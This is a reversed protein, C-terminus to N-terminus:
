QGLVFREKNFLRTVLFVFLGTIALNTIISFTFLLTVNAANTLLASICVSLNLVPVFALGTSTLGLISPILSLVMFLMTCPGLYSAAEKVTNAIASILVGFGVFLLLTSIIILLLLVIQGFSLGLSMGGMLSPLSGILGLFSVIGSIAAVASLAVIKGLAYESRKIPTMLISALTGREKEGSISEPCFSIVTSYLMSVTIMPLVFGIIKGAMASGDSESLNTEVIAPAGDKIETNVMYNNYAYPIFSTMTSQLNESDGDEGNYFININNFGPDTSLIKEEFNTTYEVFLTIEKNKVKNKYEAIKDVSVKIYEAKNNAQKVSDTQMYGTDFMTLLKPLNTTDSAYNDTYAIKYTVDTTNSEFIGSQFFNGMLRYFGFILIGPLFMALLMRRDTFFRRLEKKIIVLMNKM